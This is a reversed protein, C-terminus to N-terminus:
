TNVLAEHTVGECVDGDFSLAIHYNTTQWQVLRRNGDLASIATPSMGVAATIEAETRGTLTGLAAFKNALENGQQNQMAATIIGGVIIAGVVWALFEM